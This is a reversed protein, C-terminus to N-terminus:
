RRVDGGNLHSDGTELGVGDPVDDVTALCEVEFLDKPGGALSSDQWVTDGHLVDPEPCHVSGIPLRELGSLSPHNAEGIQDLHHLLRSEGFEGVALDGAVVGFSSRM